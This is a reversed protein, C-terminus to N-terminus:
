NKFGMHKQHPEKDRRGGGEDQGPGKGRRSEQEHHSKDRVKSQFMKFQEPTLIDRVELIGELKQDGMKKNLEQIQQHLSYIEAKDIDQQDIANRLQEHVKETEIKYRKMLLMNAKRNEELRKQQEETLGLKDQMRQKMEERKERHETIMTTEDASLEMKAQAYSFSGPSLVGLLMVLTMIKMMNNM